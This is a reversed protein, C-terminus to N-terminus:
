LINLSEVYFKNPWDVEIYISSDLYILVENDEGSVAYSLPHSRRDSDGTRLWFAITFQDSPMDFPNCIVLDEVGDFDMCTRNVGHGWRPDREGRMLVM